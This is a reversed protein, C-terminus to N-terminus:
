TAPRLFSARQWGGATWRVVSADAMLTLPEFEPRCAAHCAPCRIVGAALQDRQEPTIAALENQGGACKVWGTLVASVHVEM